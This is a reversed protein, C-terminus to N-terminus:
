PQCVALEKARREPMMSRGVKIIGPFKSITMIYLADAKPPTTESTTEPITESTTESADMPVPTPTPEPLDPSRKKEWLAKGAQRSCWKCYSYRGDKQRKNVYYEAHPKWEQCKFCQKHGSMDILSSESLSPEITSGVESTM